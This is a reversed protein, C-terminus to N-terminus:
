DVGTVRRASEVFDLLVPALFLVLVSLQGEVIDAVRMTGRDGRDGVAEATDTFKGGRRPGTDGVECDCVVQKDPQAAVGWFGGLCCRQSYQSGVIPEKLDIVCAPCM